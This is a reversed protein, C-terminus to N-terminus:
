IWGLKEFMANLVLAFSEVGLCMLYIPDEGLWWILEIGNPVQSLIKKHEKNSKNSPKAKRKKRENEIRQLYVL